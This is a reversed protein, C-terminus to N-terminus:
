NFRGHLQKSGSAYRVRSGHCRDFMDSLWLRPADGQARLPEPLLTGTRGPAMMQSLQQVSKMKMLDIAHINKAPSM